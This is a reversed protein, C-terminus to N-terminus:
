VARRPLLHDCRKTQATLSVPDLALAKKAEALAEEYRGMAVLYNAYYFHAAPYNPNLAISRQFEREADAWEYEHFHAHGLSSHPEAFAEDITVAKEAWQRAQTTAARTPMYADDLLSLYSDAMPHTDLITSLRNRLSGCATTCRKEAESTGCIADASSRRM